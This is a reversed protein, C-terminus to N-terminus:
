PKYTKYLNHILAYARVGVSMTIRFTYWGILFTFVIQPLGFNILVRKVWALVPFLSSNCYDEILLIFDTFGPISANILVVIPLIIISSLKGILWLVFKVLLEFM